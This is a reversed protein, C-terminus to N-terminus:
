PYNTRDPKGKSTVEGSVLIGNKYAMTEIAVRSNKDIKLYADLIKDSIIDCMKDPHGKRVSESTYFKKM